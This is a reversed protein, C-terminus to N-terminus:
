DNWNYEPSVIGYGIFLVDSEKIEIEEKVRKSWFVTESGPVLISEKKDQNFKLFSEELDVEMKSLPVELLFDDKVPDLGSSEFSKKIYEKTLEGGLTGPERGEFKDSSLKKVHEHINKENIHELDSCSTILFSFIITLLIKPNM